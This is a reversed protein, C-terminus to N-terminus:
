GNEREWAISEATVRIGREDFVEKIRENFARGTPWQKGPLTKIRCRVIVASDAFRDIAAQLTMESFQANDNACAAKVAEECGHEV